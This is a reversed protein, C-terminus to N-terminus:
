GVPDSVYDARSERNKLDDARRRTARRIPHCSTDPPVGRSGCVNFCHSLAHEGGSGEGAVAHFLTARLASHPGEWAIHEIVLAEAPISISEWYRSIFLMRRRPRHHITRGMPALEGEDRGEGRLVPSPSVAANM